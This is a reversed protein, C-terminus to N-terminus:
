RNFRGVAVASISAGTTIVWGKTSTCVMGCGVVFPPPCVTGTGSGAFTPVTIVATSGDLITIGAAASSAPVVVVHSLYDGVAGDGSTSIQKTTQSAAVTVYQSHELEIGANTFQPM